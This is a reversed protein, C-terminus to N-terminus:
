LGGMYGAELDNGDLVQCVAAQVDFVETGFGLLILIRQTSEHYPVGAKTVSTTPRVM